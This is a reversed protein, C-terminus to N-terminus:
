DDKEEKLDEEKKLDESRSLYAHPIITELITNIYCNDFTLGDRYYALSANALLGNVLTEYLFAKIIKEDNDM